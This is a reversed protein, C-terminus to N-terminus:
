RVLMIQKVQRVTGATFRVYYIGRPASGGNEYNGNWTVSYRGPDQTFNVLNGVLRGIVDYVQIIVKGSNLDDSAIEYNITISEKTPNPYIEVIKSQSTVDQNLQTDVGTITIEEDGSKTGKLQAIIEYATKIMDEAKENEDPYLFSHSKLLDKLKVIFSNLKNIADKNRNANIYNKASNLSSILENGLARKLSGYMLETVNLILGNIRDVLKQPPVYLRTSWAKGSTSGDPNLQSDATLIRQNLADVAAADNGVGPINDVLKLSKIGTFSGEVGPIDVGGDGIEFILVEHNETTAYIHLGDGGNTAGTIKTNSGTSSVATGFYDSGPLVDILLIRGDETTAIAYGADGTVDVKNINTGSSGNVAICNFCYEKSQPNINVIKLGDDTAVLVLGADGTIAMGKGGTKLDVSSTAHDFGGSNPNVDIVSLNKSTYNAVYVFDGDPVVAIGNPNIGVNIQKIETPPAKTLDIVSVTHSGYNTVYARTDTSNLAIDMPIQGVPIDYGFKLVGKDDIYVVSITNSGSNTIFATTCDGNLAM